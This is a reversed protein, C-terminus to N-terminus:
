YSIYRNKTSIAKSIRITPKEGETDRTTSNKVLKLKKKAGSEEITFKLKQSASIQSM